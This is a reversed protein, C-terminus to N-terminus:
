ARRSVPFAQPYRALRQWRWAGLALTTLAVVVLLLDPSWKLWLMTASSLGLGLMSGLVPMMTKVATPRPLRSWDRWLLLGAPLWCVVYGHVVKAANSDDLILRMLVAVVAWSVLFQLMQRRALRQNLAAGRPMGPLLMLLAQERRTSYLASRSSLTPLVVAIGIAMGIAFQSDFQLSQLGYGFHAVAWVLAAVGAM